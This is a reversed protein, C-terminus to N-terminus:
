QMVLQALPRLLRANVLSFGHILLFNWTGNICLYKVKWICSEPCYEMLVSSADPKCNFSDIFCNLYSNHLNPYQSFIVSCAVIFSFTLSYSKFKHFVALPQFVDRYVVMAQFSSKLLFPYHTYSDALYNRHPQFYHGAMKKTIKEANHNFKHLLLSWVNNELANVNALDRPLQQFGRGEAETKLLERPVQCVNVCPFGHKIGITIRVWFRWNSVAKQILRGSFM